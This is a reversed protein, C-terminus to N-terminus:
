DRHRRSDIAGGKGEAQGRCMTGGRPLSSEPWAGLRIQHPGKNSLTPGSDVKEEHLHLGLSKKGPWKHISSTSWGSASAIKTDNGAKAKLGGPVAKEPTSHASAIREQPHPDKETATPNRRLHRPTCNGTNGRAVKKCQVNAAIAKAM